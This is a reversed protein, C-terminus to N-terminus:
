LTEPSKGNRLEEVLRKLAPVRDENLAKIKLGIVHEVFKYFQKMFRKKRRRSMRYPEPKKM